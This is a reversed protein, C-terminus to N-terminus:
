GARIMAERLLLWLGAAVGGGVLAGMVVQAATHARLVVRSWCVAPILLMLPIWPAGLMLVAIATSLAVAGAHGSIKWFVSIVGLVVVSGVIALVTVIVSAPANVVTLLGLGALLSLLAMATVPARQRRDSVHHDTIKGLRVLLLVAAFPLVCVFLVALAGFWATGPFGPEVVPSLLLLVAVTVPPQFVASLFLAVRNRIVTNRQERRVRPGETM